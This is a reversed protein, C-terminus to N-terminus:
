PQKTPLGVLCAAAGAGILATGTFFNAWSCADIFQRFARHVQTSRM